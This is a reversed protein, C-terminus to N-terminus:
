TRHGVLIAVPLSWIALTESVSLDFGARSLYGAADIPQCDVIHPFHQHLWKYTHTLVSEHEGEPTEAMGVVGLRGGPRLVRWVEGLVGPIRGPPFLELTFSMTAVDFRADAYPLPPVEAVDLAVRDELGAERLRNRAVKEMGSSIDVGCVTGSDGVATALAVLAHGTGFGIEVVREGERVRCRHEGADAILDYASSIRDYFTRTANHDGTSEAM